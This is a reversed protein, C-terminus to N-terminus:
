ATAALGDLHRAIEDFGPRLLPEAALCRAHLAALAARTADSGPELHAVLEELLCGFARVEMQELRRARAPDAPSVFSAAGFDGLFVRGAGDHLINHAYLDGHVIGRQHLHAAAAAIGLAIALATAPTFRADAPYV